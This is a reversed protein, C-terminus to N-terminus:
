KGGEGALFCMFNIIGYLLALYAFFHMGNREINKYATYQSVEGFVSLLVFSYNDAFYKRLLRTFANVPFDNWTIIVIYIAIFACDLYSQQLFELM